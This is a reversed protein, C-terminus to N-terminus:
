KKRAELMADAVDYAAQAAHEADMPFRHLEMASCIGGIAAIAFDDRLDQEYETLRHPIEAPQHTPRAVLSDQFERVKERLPYSTVAVGEIDLLVCLGPDGKPKASCWYAREDEEQVSHGQSILWIQFPRFQEPRLIGRDSKRETAM